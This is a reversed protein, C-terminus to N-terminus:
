KWPCIKVIANIGTANNINCSVSPSYKIMRLFLLNYKKAMHKMWKTPWVSNKFYEFLPSHMYGRKALKSYCLKARFLFENINNCLRFFGILQSHCITFGLMSHIDSLPFPNNIVDFNIGDVKHYIDIVFKGDIVCIFLDLFTGQKYSCANAQLLILDSVRECIVVWGKGVM